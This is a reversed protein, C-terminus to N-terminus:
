CDDGDCKDSPVMIFDYFKRKENKDVKNNFKKKLKNLNYFDKKNVLNKELMLIKFDTSTKKEIRKILQYILVNPNCENIYGECALILSQKGDQSIAFMMPYASVNRKLEFSYFEGKLYNSLRNQQKTDLEIFDQIYYSKLININSCNILFLFFVLYFKKKFM